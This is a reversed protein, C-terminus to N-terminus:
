SSRFDEVARGQTRHAAVFGEPEVGPRDVGPLPGVGLGPAPRHRDVGRRREHELVGLVGGVQEGQLGEAVDVAPDRLGVLAAKSSRIAESSPPSPPRAASTPCTPGASRGARVPSRRRGCRTRWRGTRRCRCATRRSAAASPSRPSRRRGRRRGVLDLRRDPRVGLREEALRDAVGAHAMRSMAGTRRCPGRRVADREHDVVREGGGVQAPRDLPAGVDDGVRGGLEDAAVADDDAPHDDLGAPEREVVALERREGLRRRRVVVEVEPLVETLVAVQHPGPDLHHAVDAGRQRREM